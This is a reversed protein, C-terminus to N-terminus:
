NLLKNLYNELDFEKVLNYGNNGLFGKKELSSYSKNLVNLLENKNPKFLYGNQNNVLEPIGGIESAIVPVKFSFAEIIATPLNEYCLSPYVLFDAKAFIQKTVATNDLRGWFRISSDEKYLNKLQEFLQGEGVIWLLVDSKDKKFQAFSELLMRIGKHDEVQGVFCYVLKSLQNEEKLNACEKFIPNYIQKIKSHKFFGKNLYFDKLWNSPFIVEKTNKFIFINIKEYVKYFINILKKEKQHIILGSPDALAVDHITIKYDIKMKKLLTPILYGIGKLNHVLVLDPKEYKLIKKVVFYSHINFVDFFHWFMRLVFNRKNINIFSFINLPFFRWVRMQDVMEKVPKLSKLSKFREITIISVQDGKAVLGDVLKEVVVEAGGRKYPKYLSNIVVIKM